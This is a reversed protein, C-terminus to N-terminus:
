SPWGTSLIDTLADKAAELVIELHAHLQLSWAPNILTITPISFLWTELGGSYYVVLPNDKAWEFVTRFFNM